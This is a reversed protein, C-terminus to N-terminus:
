IKHALLNASILAFYFSESINDSLSGFVVACVLLNWNQSFSWDSLRNVTFCKIDPNSFNQSKTFMVYHPMEIKAM